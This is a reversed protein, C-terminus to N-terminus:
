PLWKEERWAMDWFMYEYRASLVFLHKLNAQTAATAASAEANMIDLVQRVSKAYSEDSYQEIWRQYEPRKSGRNKLEQGVEWYIWYCPLVAALGEAFTGRQATALLHNAYAYNTPAIAAAQMAKPTVGYSALISEHLQREAKLSEVAHTNLIIAWEERPAKSALVSLAQGFSRLYHADQTLYFRFRSPPLTGDALGRLFPHALAKAYIPAIAGWLEDTFRQQGQAPLAALLALAL